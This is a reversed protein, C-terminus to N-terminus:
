MLYYVYVLSYIWGPTIQEIALRLSAIIIKTTNTNTTYDSNDRHGVLGLTVNMVLGNVDEESM